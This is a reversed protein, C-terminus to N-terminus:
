YPDEEKLLYLYSNHVLKLKSIYVLAFINLIGTSIELQIVDHLPPNLPSARGSLAGGGRVLIEKIEHARESFTYM